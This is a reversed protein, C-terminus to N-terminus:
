APKNNTLSFLLDSPNTQLALLIDMLSAQSVTRADYRIMLTRRGPTLEEIGPPALTKIAEVLREVGLWNAGDPLEEGFEVLLNKDGAQRYAISPQGADGPLRAIVTASEDNLPLLDATSLEVSPQNQLSDIIDEQRQFLQRAIRQSIRVFRVTDGSNLQGLKWLDARAITLPSRSGHCVPTDRTILEVGDKAACIAGVAYVSATPRDRLEDPEVQPSPSRLLPSQLLLQGPSGSDEASDYRVTNAAVICANDLLAKLAQESVFEPAGHPGDLVCIEWDSCYRPILEPDAARPQRVPRAHRASDDPAFSDAHGITLSQGLSLPRGGFPGLQGAIDTSRSGMVVPTDWGGRVSVYTTRGSTPAGVSLLQGAAVEIPRWQPVAVSDLTIPTEPGTIAVTAAELFLIQPGTGICELAAASCHNGVIRNAIRFAYDDLPGAPAIGFQRHGTRGPFDQVTTCEGARRITCGSGTSGVTIGRRSGSVARKTTDVM